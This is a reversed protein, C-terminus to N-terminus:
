LFLVHRSYTGTRLRNHAIKDYYPSFLWSFRNIGRRRSHPLALAILSKTGQLLVVKM